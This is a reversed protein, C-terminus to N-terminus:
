IRFRALLNLLSSLYLVELLDFSDIIYVYCTALLLLIWDVFANNNRTKSSRGYAYPQKVFPFVM